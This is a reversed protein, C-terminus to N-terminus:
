WAAPVNAPPIKHGTPRLRNSQPDTPRISISSSRCHFESGLAVAQAAEPPSVGAARFCGGAYTGVPGGVEMDAVRLLEYLKFAIAKDDEVASKPEDAEQEEAAAAAEETM